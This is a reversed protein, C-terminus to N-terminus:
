PTAPHPQHSKEEGRFLLSKIVVPVVGTGAVQAGIDIYDFDHLEIGDISVLPHGPALGSALTHGLLRGVDSDFVLVLPLGRAISRRLATRLGLAFDRLVQYHPTAAWHFALAVPRAGEELDHHRFARRVAAAVAQPALGAEPISITLVPLNRLPLGDAASLFITSGSVQVTYQCAGIVTSRIRQAPAAVPLGLRPALRRVERALALGLDGYDREECGYIYESVGGSFLVVDPRVGAPLPSTVALDRALPSPAGEVFSFLCEALLRAVQERDAQSLPQGPRPAVGLAHCAMRGAPEIRTLRREGDFALLRAGVNIAATEEVRGERALALKSTGGGIDINLVAGGGRSRAVAGSGYAAMKAELNPGATACVFRGAQESFLAIIHPANHRAAAEGTIIVAGSDIAAPTVGAQAYAQRFLGDVAPVDITAADLYPTLWIPSQYVVEQRVVQFRSSLALGQRVLLLDSFMLHTTASGIDIGVSRLSFWERGALPHEEREKPAAEEAEHYVDNM